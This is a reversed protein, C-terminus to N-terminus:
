VASEDYKHYIERYKDQLLKKARFIRSKVTGVPINQKTAIDKYDIEDIVNLNFAQIHLNDDFDALLEQVLNKQCDQKCFTESFDDEFLNEFIYTDESSEILIEKKSYKTRFYESYMRLTIVTLWTKLSCEKKWQSSHRVAKLLSNQVCDEIDEFRATPNKKKLLKILYERYSCIEINLNM